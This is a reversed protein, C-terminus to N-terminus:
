RDTIPYQIEVTPPGEPGLGHILERGPGSLRCGHRELWRGIAHHARQHGSELTDVAVVSVVRDVAPLTSPELLRHGSALPVPEDGPSPFGIELDVDVTDFSPGHGVVVLPGPEPVLHRTAAVADVLHEAAAFDTVVTRHLLAPQAPISREVVDIGVPEDDGLEALRGALERLRREADARAQEARLQEVRLMARLDAPTTGERLLQRIQDLNLGLEKMAVIRHVEALQDAEYYRYGTTPDVCAPPLLGIEDYHRLMRVSLQALHSFEGIQFM